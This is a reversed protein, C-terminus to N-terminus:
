SRPARGGYRELLGLEFPRHAPNRAFGRYIAHCSYCVAVDAVLLYIVGDVAAMAVLAGFALLPRGLAFFVLSGLCGLVVITLGLARSFDKQVYLDAHGCCACVDVAEGARVAPSKAMRPAEGCGPCAVGGSAGAAIEL